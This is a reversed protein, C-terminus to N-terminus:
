QDRWDDYVIVRELEAIENKQEQIIELQRAIMEQQANLQALLRKNENAYRFLVAKLPDISKENWFLENM